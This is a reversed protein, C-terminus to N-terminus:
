LSYGFAEIYPKLVPLIESFYAEYHRWRALSTKYLPKNVQDFSPTKIVKAQSHRYFSQCESSWDLGIKNFIPTFQKEMDAVVEEYRLETWNVALSDRISLWYDMILAYFRAGDQWNLFHVTLASLNFAQMYCSLCIDRPDRLTFIVQADPFLTNILEINLVNLATKDLLVRDNFDNNLLSTATQWYTQRLHSIQESTLSKLRASLSLSAPTIKYLAKLVQPMLFAEDSSIVKPHSALIQEALTTGSRYFGLLFLPNRKDNDTIRSASSQLFDKDFENKLQAIDHFVAQKHLNRAIPSNLTLAGAKSLHSFANAFEGLKDLIIGLELHARAHSAQEPQELLRELREKAADRKDLKAELVALQIIANPEHPALTVAQNAYTYAEQQRNLGQLCLSATHNASASLNDISLIASTLELAQEPAHWHMLQYALNALNETKGTKKAAKLEIKSAQILYPIGSQSQNLQCLSLGLGALAQASHQNETLAFRYFREATAFDNHQWAQQASHLHNQYHNKSLDSNDTKDM